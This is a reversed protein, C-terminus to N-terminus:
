IIKTTFPLHLINDMNGFDSIIGDEIILWANEICSLISLEKGRLLHPKEGTNVLQRINTIIQTAM